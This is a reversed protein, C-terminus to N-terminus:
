LYCSCFYFCLYLFRQICPYAPFPFVVNSFPSVLILYTKLNLFLWFLFLLMLSIKKSADIHILFHCSLFRQRLRQNIPCVLILYAVDTSKIKPNLQYTLCPFVVHDSISLHRVRSLLMLRSYVSFEFCSCSYCCLLFRQIYPYAPSPFIGNSSSGPFPFVIAIIKLYM